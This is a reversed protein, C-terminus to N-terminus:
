CERNCHNKDHTGSTADRSRIIPKFHQPIHISGVIEESFITKTNIM